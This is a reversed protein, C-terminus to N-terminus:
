GITARAIFSAFLARDWPEPTATLEEPHWQVGICWWDDDTWEAAEIVGDDARAVVRLSNGVRDLMQHHLSNVGLQDADLLTCLRSNPEVTLRHVRDHRPGSTRHSTAAPHSEPIHQVLTGGAAVNLLQLGRCIALTPLRAARAAEILLLESRDRDHDPPETAPHRAAGYRAPDVDEGGTLLLGQVASIVAGAGAADPLPPVLVPVGGASAIADSYAANTRMRPLGRVIEM